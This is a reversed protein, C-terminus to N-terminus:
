GPSEFCTTRRSGSLVGVRSIEEEEHGEDLMLWTCVDLRGKEASIMLSTQRTSPDTNRIDSNSLRSALRMLHSLSPDTRLALRFRVSPSQLHAM